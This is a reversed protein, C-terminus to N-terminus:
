IISPIYVNVGCLFVWLDPSDVGLSYRRLSLNVVAILLFIKNNIKGDTWVLVEQARAALVSPNEDPM